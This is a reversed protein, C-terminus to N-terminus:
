KQLGVDDDDDYTTTTTHDCPITYFNGECDDFFTTGAFNKGSLTADIPTDRDGRPAAVAL